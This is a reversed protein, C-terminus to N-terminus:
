HNIAEKKYHQGCLEDLMIVLEENKRMVSLETEATGRANTLIL